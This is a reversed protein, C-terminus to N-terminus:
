KQTDLGWKKFLDTYFPPQPFDLRMEKAFNRYGHDMKEFHRLGLILTDLKEIPLSFIIEDDDALARQYDGPDPITIRYERNLIVPVISYVCSDIPDFHSTILKGEKFKVALLITRLQSSNCYILAMDPNFSAQKLPGSVIGIYKGFEFRPFYKALEKAAEQNEVLNPFFAKGEMFFEPIEALGYSILPAWCWNDEKLVAVTKGKRRSIAFAQCQAAHQGLNKKPRIAEKPIDEEKELMKVALSSTRLQLLTDLEEGYIKIKNLDAM